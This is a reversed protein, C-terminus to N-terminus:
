AASSELKKLRKMLGYGIAKEEKFKEMWNKEQKKATDIMKEWSIRGAQPNDAFRLEAEIMEKKMILGAKEEELAARINELEAIKDIDRADILFKTHPLHALNAYKPDDVKSAFAMMDQATRPAVGAVLLFGLWEGRECLAKAAILDQGIEFSTRAVRERIRDAIRQLEPHIEFKTIEDTM